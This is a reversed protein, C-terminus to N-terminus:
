INSYSGTSYYPYHNLLREMEAKRRQDDWQFLECIFPAIKIALSPDDGLNTRRLVLDDLHIVSENGILTILQDAYRNVTTQPDTSLEERDFRLKSDSGFNLKKISLTQTPPFLKKLLEEALHKAASYKVATISYLGAPGGFRAHNFIQNDRVLQTTGDKRVPLFGSYVHEIEQLTLNIDPITHNIDEIFTQLEDNTPYPHEDLDKRPAHGTGILLQNKWPHIFYTQANKIKPALALAHTSLAERKFLVNWAISYKFLDAYEVDFIRSMQRVWPGTANVVLPTYFNYKQGSVEDLAVLGVVRNNKVILESARCYNLATAGMACAKKVVAVLLLQPDPMCADYWYASGKLGKQDVAPFLNITEERNIIKGFPLQHAKDMRRNRGASLIKDMTLAVSLVSKRRLGQNYIPMLVPLPEVLDPFNLIFWRRERVYQFYLKLNVDQLYRLGGHITKLSNFSTASGFDNQEVLLASLGRMSAALTIMAGYIGGGVVVIDYRKESANRPNRIIPQM